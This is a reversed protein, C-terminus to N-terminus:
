KGTADANAPFQGFRANHERIAQGKYSGPGLYHCEDCEVHWWYDYGYLETYINGCKPCPKIKPLTM